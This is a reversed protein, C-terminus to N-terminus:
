AGFMTLSNPSPFSILDSLQQHNIRDEPNVEFMQYMVNHLPAPIRQMNRRFSKVAYPRSAMDILEDLDDTSFPLQHFLLTYFLVGLSWIDSIGPNYRGGKLVEPAMYYPTGMPDACVVVSRCSFGFDIIKLSLTVPDIMVNELKIDRHAVDREKMHLVASALQSMISIKQGFDLKVDGLLLKEVTIMDLYELVLVLYNRTEFHDIMSVINEHDLRMLASISRRYDFIIKDGDKKTVRLAVKNHSSDEALYVNASMGKGLGGLITYQGLTQKKM